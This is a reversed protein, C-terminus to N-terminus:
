GWPTKAAEAGLETFITGLFIRVDGRALAPLSVGRVAPDPLEQTVSPGGLHLYALDLHADLWWRAPRAPAPDPM